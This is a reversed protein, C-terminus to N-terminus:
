KTGVLMFRNFDALAKEGRYDIKSLQMAGEFENLTKFCRVHEQIHFGDNSQLIVKTGKPIQSWWANIDSLHECSTNIVVDPSEYLECLTGDKRRVNFHTPYKMQTIDMTSSKFQWDKQVQSQNLIEATPGVAEDIDFSRINKTVIGADFIFRPLVGIWGALVFVSGWDKGWVKTAEEILWKKSDLQGFSFAEAFQPAEGITRFIQRLSDPASFYEIAHRVAMNFDRLSEPSDTTVVKLAGFYAPWENFDTQAVLHRVTMLYDAVDKENGGVLAIGKFFESWDKFNKTEGLHRITMLFDTLEIKSESLKACSDLFAEMSPMFDALPLGNLSKLFVSVDALSSNVTLSDLVVRKLLESKQPMKEMLALLNLCFDMVGEDFVKDRYELEM